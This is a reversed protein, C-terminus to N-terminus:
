SSGAPSPSCRRVALGQAASSRGAAGPAALPKLHSSTKTQDFTLTGLIERHKTRTVTGFPRDTTLHALEQDVFQSFPAAATPAHTLQPLSRSPRLNWSSGLEPRAAFAERSTTLPTGALGFNSYAPAGLRASMVTGVHPLPHRVTSAPRLTATPYSRGM